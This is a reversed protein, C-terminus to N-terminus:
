LLEQVFLTGGSALQIASCKDSENVAFIQPVAAAMPTDTVAATPAAGFKIFGATSLMVRVFRTGTAFANTVVGPTGTYAVSQSVGAPGWTGPIVNGNPDYLQPM